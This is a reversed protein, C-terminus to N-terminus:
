EREETRRDLWTLLQEAAAPGAEPDDLQEVLVKCRAHERALASTARCPRAAATQVGVGILYRAHRDPDEDVDTVALRELVERTAPDALEIAKRADGHADALARFAALHQEDAFLAEVLWPAIDDWRHVLLALAVAEASEGSAASPCPSSGSPAAGTSRGCWSPRRSGPRPPSRAPTSGSCTPM